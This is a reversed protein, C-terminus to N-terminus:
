PSSIVAPKMLEEMAEVFASVIKAERTNTTLWFGLRYVRDGTYEKIEEIAVEKLIERAIDIAMKQKILGEIDSKDKIYTLEYRSMCTQTQIKKM